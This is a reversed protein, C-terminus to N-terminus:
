AVSCYDLDSNIFYISSGGYQSLIIKQLIPSYIWDRLDYASIEKRNLIDNKDLFYIIGQSTKTWAYMYDNIGELLTGGLSSFRMYSNLGAPLVLRHILEGTRIDYVSITNDGSEMVSVRERRLLLGSPNRGVKYRRFNITKM